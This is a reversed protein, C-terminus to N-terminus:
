RVRRTASLRRTLLTGLTLVLVAIITVVVSVASLEPSISESAAGACRGRYRLGV